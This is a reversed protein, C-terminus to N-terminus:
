KGSQALTLDRAARVQEDTLMNKIEILMELYLLKKRNEATVVKDAQALALASDVPHKELSAQLETGSDLLEFDIESSKAQVAILKKRLASRQADTLHLEGRHQLIFDPAFLRGLMWDDKPTDAAVAIAALATLICPTVLYLIVQTPKM